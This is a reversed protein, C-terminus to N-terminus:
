DANPGVAFGCNGIVETTVGQRAKSEATPDVLLTRDSHAHMDVFGPALVQGRGDIVRGAGDAPVEGVAVITDDRVAVSGPRGPAGTGDVLTANVIPLDDGDPGM